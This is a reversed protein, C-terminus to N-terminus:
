EPNWFQYVNKDKREVEPPRSLNSPRQFTSPRKLISPWCVENSEMMTPVKLNSRNSSPIQPNIDKLINKSVIKITKLIWICKQIWWFNFLQFISIEQYNWWIIPWSIEFNQIKLSNEVLWQSLIIQFLKKAFFIWINLFRFYKPYRKFHFIFHLSAM